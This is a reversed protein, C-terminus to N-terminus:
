MDCKYRLEVQFSRFFGEHVQLMKNPTEEPTTYQMKDCKWACSWTSNALHRNTLRIQQDCRYGVPGSTNQQEVPAGHIGGLGCPSFTQVPSSSTVRHSPRVLFSLNFQGTLTSQLVSVCSLVVMSLWFSIESSYPLSSKNQGITMISRPGTRIPFIAFCISLTKLAASFM